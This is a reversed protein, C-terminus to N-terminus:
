NRIPQKWTSVRAPGEAKDALNRNYTKFAEIVRDECIKKFEELGTFENEEPLDFCDGFSDYHTGDALTAYGADYDTFAFLTAFPAYGDVEDFIFDCVCQGFYLNGCFNNCGKGHYLRNLGEETMNWVFEM